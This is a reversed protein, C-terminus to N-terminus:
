FYVVVYMTKLKESYRDTDINHFIDQDMGGTINWFDCSGADNRILPPSNDPIELKKRWILNQSSVSKRSNANEKEFVRKQSVLWKQFFFFQHISIQYHM